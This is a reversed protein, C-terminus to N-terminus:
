LTGLAVPLNQVTSLVVQEGSGVSAGRRDVKNKHSDTLLVKVDNNHLEILNM